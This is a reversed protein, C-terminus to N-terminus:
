RPEGSTVAAARVPRAPAPPRRRSPTPAQPRPRRAEPTFSCRWGLQHLLAPRDPRPRRRLRPRPARRLHPLAVETRRMFLSNDPRLEVAEAVAPETFSPWGTGSDFKTDAGFLMAGCAACRYDGSDKNYVYEGTFPPETGAKRLVEYQAPTLEERWEEDTKDVSARREHVRELVGSDQRGGAPGSSDTIKVNVDIEDSVSLSSRADARAMPWPLASVCARAEADVGAVLVVLQHASDHVLRPMSSAAVLEPVSIM